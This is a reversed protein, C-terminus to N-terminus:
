AFSAIADVLLDIDDTTNYAHFSARIADHEADGRAACHGGTRVLIGREALVFGAEQSFIGDIRFSVIGFGGMCGSSAVGPLLVVRDTKQLREILTRTLTHIHRAINEIGTNRIIQLAVGLGLIGTANQTGAELLHPMQRTGLQLTNEDMSGGGGGVKVPKLEAHSDEHVWLVGIGEPAFMKHGSFSVFDAGLTQVDLPIHGASQSADLSIRVHPALKSRIDAVGVKDGCVNHVHTLVILRTRDTVRALVDRPEVDGARAMPFPVLKITIDHEALDHKLRIWPLVASAHDEPCYVIEDGDKLNHMGWSLAVLNMSETAGSTFVVEHAGNANLFNALNNRVREIAHELKNSLAYTGRGANAAASLHETVVDIVAQPKQTTAASDLYILDPHTAFFPFQKRLTDM